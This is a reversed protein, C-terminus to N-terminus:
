SKFTSARRKELLDRFAPHQTGVHNFVGDLIVKFGAGHAERVFDLFMRDSASWRWSRPERPDEGASTAAYDGGVGFREDVHLYDIADYGHYTGAQFIPNLYLANIGLDRLYPLAQRLGALDGGYRRRYVYDNWFDEDLSEEHASPQMFRSRWCRAHPPDNSPDGNRFRDLMVQYWVADKSWEPTRFVADADAELRYIAPHSM